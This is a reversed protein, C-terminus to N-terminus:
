RIFTLNLPTAIRGVSPVDLLVVKVFSIIEVIIETLQAKSAQQVQLYVNERVIKIKLSRETELCFQTYQLIKGLKQLLATQLVGSELQVAMAFATTTGSSFGGLHYPESPCLVPVADLVYEAISKLGAKCPTAATLRIGFTPRTTTGFLGEFMATNSGNEMSSFFPEVTEFVNLTPKKMKHSSSQRGDRLKSSVSSPPVYAWAAENLAVVVGVTSALIETASIAQTM